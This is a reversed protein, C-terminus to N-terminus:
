RRLTNTISSWAPAGVVFATSVLMVLALGGAGQPWVEAMLGLMIGVAFGGIAIRASPLSQETAVHSLAAIGVTGVTGVVVLRKAQGSNM